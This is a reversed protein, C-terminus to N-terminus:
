SRSIWKILKVLHVILIAIVGITFPLWTALPVNMTETGYKTGAIGIPITMLSPTLAGVTHLVRGGWTRPDDENKKVDDAIAKLGAIIIIAVGTFFAPGKGTADLTTGIAAALLAGIEILPAGVGSVFRALTLPKRRPVRRQQQDQQQREGSEVDLSRRHLKPMETISLTNTHQRPSDVSGSSDMGLDEGLRQVNEIANHTTKILSSVQPLSLPDQQQHSSGIDIVTHDPMPMTPRLEEGSSVPSENTEISSGLRDQEDEWREDEKLIYGEEADFRGRTKSLVWRGQIPNLTDPLDRRNPGSATQRLQAIREGQKQQRLGTAASSAGGQARQAAVAVPPRKEHRSRDAHTQM